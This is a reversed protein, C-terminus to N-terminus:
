NNSNYEVRDYKNSLRYGPLEHYVLLRLSVLTIPRSRALFLDRSQKVKEGGRGQNVRLVRLGQNSSAAQQGRACSMGSGVVKLSISLLRMTGPRGAQGHSM